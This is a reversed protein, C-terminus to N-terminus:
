INYYLKNNEEYVRSGEIYLYGSKLLQKLHFDSGPSMKTTFRITLTVEQLPEGERYGSYNDVMMHPATM